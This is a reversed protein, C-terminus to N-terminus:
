NKIYPKINEYTSIPVQSQFKKISKISKYGYEKGWETDRGSYILKKIVENQVDIPYKNFLEIQHIRKKIWWNLVSNVFAM